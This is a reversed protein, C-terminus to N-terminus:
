RERQTASTRSFFSFWPSQDHRRHPARSTRWIQLRDSSGSRLRVAGKLNQLPFKRGWPSRTKSFIDITRCTDSIAFSNQSHLGDIVAEGYKCFRPLRSVFTSGGGRINWDSERSERCFRPVDVPTTRSITTGDGLQGSENLGGDLYGPDSCLVSAKDTSCEFKGCAGCAAWPM